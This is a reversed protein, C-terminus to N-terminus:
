KKLGKKLMDIELVYSNIAEQDTLNQAVKEILNRITITAIIKMLHPLEIDRSINLHNKNILPSIQQFQEIGGNANFITRFSSEVEYTMNLFANRLFNINDGKSLEKIILSFMETMADFLDGDNKNLCYIFIEKSQIVQENLIYFYADEKDEFYQYFSGRPIKANKVINAISADSLPVRSFEKRLAETLVQQKEKTLNHFTLKPLTTGGLYHYTFIDM